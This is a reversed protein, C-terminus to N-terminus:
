PREIEFIAFTICCHRGSIRPEPVVIDCRGHDRRLMFGEGSRPGLDFTLPLLPESKSDDGNDDDDTVSVTSERRCYEEITAGPPQVCRENGRIAVRADANRDEACLWAIVNLDDMTTAPLFQLTM